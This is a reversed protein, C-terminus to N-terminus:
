TPGLRALLIGSFCGLATNWYRRQAANADLAEGAMECSGGTKACDRRGITACGRAVRGAPKGATSRLLDDPFNELASAVCLPPRENLAARAADILAKGGIHRPM